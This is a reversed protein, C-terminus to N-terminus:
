RKNPIKCKLVSQYLSLARKGYGRSLEICHAGQWFVPHHSATIVQCGGRAIRDLGRRIKIIWPLDHGAEPEDLLLCDGKAFSMAALVDRMTEGHSSFMARVKIIADAPGYFVGPDRHPNMTESNFYHYRTPGKEIRRCGRGEHIAKLLSTKGSGNPGIVANYGERFVFRRRNNVRGRYNRDIQIEKLM